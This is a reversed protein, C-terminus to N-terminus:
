RGRLRPDLMDRLADGLQNFGVVLLLIALAPMTSIWWQTMLYEQGQSVMLGWEPTPPQAGFGIFSLGAAILLVGGMDLTGQVLMPTFANPLIHRFLIKASSAGIARAAEVHELRKIALVQARALRAYIPWYTVSIALLANTLDPTLVASIAMALILSPFALFMDTVRMLLEDWWGGLWGALMGFLSGTLGASLVVVFSSLLDIRAGFVVRSFVDSGVDDTGFLHHISPPLLRQTLDVATPSYPAILPAFVALPVFLAIIVFGSIFLPNRRVSRWFQGTRSRRPAPAGASAPSLTDPPTATAM